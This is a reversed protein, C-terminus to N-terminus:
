KGYQVNRSKLQNYNNEDLSLNYNSITMLQKNNRNSNISSIIKKYKNKQSVSGSKKSGLKENVLNKKNSNIYPNKKNGIKNTGKQKKYIKNKKSETDNHKRRNSITISRISSSNKEITKKRNNITKVNGPETISHIITKSDNSEKNLLQNNKRIFSKFLTNTNKVKNNSYNKLQIFNEFNKYNKNLSLITKVSYYKKIREKENNIDNLHFNNLPYNIINNFPTSINLKKKTLKKYSKETKYNYKEIIKEKNLINAMFKNNNSKIKNLEIKFLPINRNNKTKIFKKDQFTIKKNKNSINESITIFNTYNNDFNNISYDIATKNIQSFKKSELRKKTIINNNQIKLLDSSNKYKERASEKIKKFKLSLNINDKNKTNIKKNTNNLNLNIKKNNNENIIADNLMKQSSEFNYDMKNNIFHINNLQNIINKEYIDLEKQINTRYLKKEFDYLSDTLDINRTEYNQKNKELLKVENTIKNTEIIIENKKKILINKEKKLLKQKKKIENNKNNIEQQKSIFANNLLSSFNKYDFDNSPIQELFSYRRKQSPTINLKFPILKDGNSIFPEITNVFSHSAGPFYFKNRISLNINNINKNNINIMNNNQSLIRNGDKNLYESNIISVLSSTGFSGGLHNKIESKQKIKQINHIVRILIKICIENNDNKLFYWQKDESKICHILPIKVSCINNRIFFISTKFATIEFFQKSIYEYSNNPLDYKFSNLLDNFIIKQSKIENINYEPQQGFLISLEYPLEIKDKQCIQSEYIILKICNNNSLAKNSNNITSM